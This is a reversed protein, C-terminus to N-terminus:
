RVQVGIQWSLQVNSDVTQRTKEFPPREAQVHQRRSRRAGPACASHSRMRLSCVAIRMRDVNAPPRPPVRPRPSTAMSDRWVVCARAAAAPGRAPRSASPRGRSAQPGPRPMNRVAPFACASTAPVRPLVPARSCWAQMSQQPGKGQSRARTPAGLKCALSLAKDRAAPAKPLALAQMSPQCGAGPRLREPIHRCLLLQKRILRLQGRRQEAAARAARRVRVLAKAGRQARQEGRPLGALRRAPPRAGRRSSGAQTLFSYGAAAHIM